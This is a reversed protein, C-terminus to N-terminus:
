ERAAGFRSLSHSVPPQRDVFSREQPRGARCPLSRYPPQMFVSPNFEVKAQEGRVKVVRGVGYGMYLDSTSRVLDGEAFEPSTTPAVAMGLTKNDTSM